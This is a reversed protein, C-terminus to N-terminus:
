FRDRSFGSLRNIAKSLLEQTTSIVKFISNSKQITTIWKYATQRWKLQSLRNGLEILIAETTFILWKEQILAKYSEM